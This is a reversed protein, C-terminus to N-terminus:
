VFKNKNVNLKSRLSIAVECDVDGAEIILCCQMPTVTVNINENGNNILNLDALLSVIISALSATLMVSVSIYSLQLNKLM